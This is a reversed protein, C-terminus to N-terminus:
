RKLTAKLKDRSIWAYRPKNEQYVRDEAEWKSHASVVEIFKTAYRVNYMRKTERMTDGKKVLTM